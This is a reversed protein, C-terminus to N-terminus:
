SNPLGWTLAMAHGAEHPPAAASSRENRLESRKRQVYARQTLLGKDNPKLTAKNVVEQQNLTAVQVTVALSSIGWQHPMCLVHLMLYPQSSVLWTHELIMQRIVFAFEPHM